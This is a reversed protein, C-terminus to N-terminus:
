PSGLWVGEARYRVVLGDPALPYWDGRSQFPHFYSFEYSSGRPGVSWLAWKVPSSDQSDYWRLPGSDEPWDAPLWIARPSPSDNHFGPGPALYRYDHDPWFVDRMRAGLFGADYLERPIECSSAALPSGCYTRTPPYTKLTDRYMELALEVQHLEAKARAVRAATRARSLAPLLMAALIGIVAVVVLLEVLTFARRRARRNECRGYM